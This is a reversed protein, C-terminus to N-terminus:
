YIKKIEETIGYKEKFKDLDKKTTILMDATFKGTKNDRFGAVTEGTCISCRLVPTKVAKDYAEKKKRGLM